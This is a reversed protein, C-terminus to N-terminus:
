AVMVETENSTSITIKGQNALKKAADIISQQASDVNKLRVMGLAEMDEKLAKAARETLNRFFLDKTEQDAGKLAMALQMKDVTRIILQVETSSLRALDEFTFMLAKVQTAVESDHNELIAMYEEETVYDFADFIDALMAHLDKTTTNSTNDIFEAKLTNEIDNLVDEHVSDLKILRLMVEKGLGKPFLSIVKAASNPKLKSLVFAITQPYENQLYSALKDSDMNGLKDWTTRGAPSRIEAMITDVKEAPMLNRLARETTNFSGVLPTGISICEEFEAYVTEVVDAPINGLTAMVLSVDRIESDDLQAMIKGAYKESLSLLLVAVKEPGTLLQATHISM